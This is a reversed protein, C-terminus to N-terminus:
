AITQDENEIDGGWTMTSISIKYLTFSEASARAADQDLCRSEGHGEARGKRPPYESSPSRM